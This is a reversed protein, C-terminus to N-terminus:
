YRPFDLAVGALIAIFHSKFTRIAREAANRRNMDPPVLQFQFKWRNQITAQYEKSCENDLIQLDVLLYNQKLRQMISNYAELGLLSGGPTM